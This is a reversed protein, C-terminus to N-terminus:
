SRRPRNSVQYEVYLPLEAARGRRWSSHLSYMSVTNLENTDLDLVVKSACYAMARPYTFYRTNVLNGPILKLSRRSILDQTASDGSGSAVSGNEVCMPDTVSKLVPLQNADRTCAGM